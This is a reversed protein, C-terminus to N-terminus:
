LPQILELIIGDTDKFYVAISKGFGYATSDFEQPESIFEVGKDGLREYEKWIDDTTFCIESISTRFLDAERKEIKNDIFQILEIPPCFLEDSGNLYAVRAQIGERGFLRDTEPGEMMMEGKFELGMTDRYFRIAKDMDSVTIGVHIIQGIM